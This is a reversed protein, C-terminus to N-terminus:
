YIIIMNTDSVCVTKKVSISEEILEIDILNARKDSGSYRYWWYGLSLSSWSQINKYLSQKAYKTTHIQLSKHLIQIAFLWKSSVNIQM